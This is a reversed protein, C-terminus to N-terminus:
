RCVDAREVVCRGPARVFRWAVYPTLFPPAPNWSMVHIGQAENLLGFAALCLVSGLGTGQPLVGAEEIFAQEGVRYNLVRPLLRHGSGLALLVAAHSSLCGPGLPLLVAVTVPIFVAPKKFSLCTCPQTSLSSSFYFTNGSQSLFLLCVDQLYGLDLCTLAAGVAEPLSCPWGQRPRVPLVCSGADGLETEHVKEPFM